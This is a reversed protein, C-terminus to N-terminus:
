ENLIKKIVGLLGSFLDDVAMVHVHSDWHIESGQDPKREKSTIVIESVGDNDLDGQTIYPRPIDLTDLLRADKLSYVFVARPGGVLFREGQYQIPTITPTHLEALIYGLEDNDMTDFRNHDRSYTVARMWENTNDQEAALIDVKNDGDLDMVALFVYGSIQQPSDPKLVYIEEFKRGRWRYISIQGDALEHYQKLVRSLIIENKGDQDIDAVELGNVEGNVTFLVTIKGNEDITKIDSKDDKSRQRAFLIKREGNNLVDGFSFHRIGELRQSVWVQKLGDTELTLVRFALNKPYQKWPYRVQTILYNKKDNSFFKGIRPPGALATIGDDRPYPFVNSVGAYCLGYLSFSFTLLLLAIRARM